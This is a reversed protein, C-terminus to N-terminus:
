FRQAVLPMLHVILILLWLLSFSFGITYLLRSTGNARRGAESGGVRIGSMTTFLDGGGLKELERARRACNNIQKQWFPIFGNFAFGSFIGLVCVIPMAYGGFGNIAALGRAESSVGESFPSSIGVIALLVGNLLLFSKIWALCIDVGKFYANGSAEYEAILFEGSKPHVVDSRPEKRVDDEFMIRGGCVKRGVPMM